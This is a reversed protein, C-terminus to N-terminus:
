FAFLTVEDLRHEHMAGTRTFLAGPYRGDVLSTIAALLASAELRALRGDSFRAVAYSKDVLLEHSRAPIM